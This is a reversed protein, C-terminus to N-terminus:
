KRGGSQEPVILDNRDNLWWIDETECHSEEKVRDIIKTCLGQESQDSLAQLLTKIEEATLELTYTRIRNDASAAASEIADPCLDRAYNLIASHLTDDVTQDAPIFDYMGEQENQKIKDNLRATLQELLEMYEKVMKVGRDINNEGATSLLFLPNM